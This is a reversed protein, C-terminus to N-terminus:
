GGTELVTSNANAFRLTSKEVVARFEHTVWDFTLYFGLTLMKGWSRDSGTCPIIVRTSKRVNRVLQKGGHIHVDDTEILYAVFECVLCLRVNRIYVQIICHIHLILNRTNQVPYYMM